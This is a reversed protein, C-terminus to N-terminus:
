LHDRKSPFNMEEWNYKNIFFFFITMTESHIGIKEHNLM